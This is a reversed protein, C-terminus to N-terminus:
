IHILSLLVGTAPDIPIMGSFFYLNGVRVGQSYPGIAAPARDTSVITKNM